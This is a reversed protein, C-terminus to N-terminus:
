ACGDLRGIDSANAALLCAVIRRGVASLHYRHTGTVKVILGHARLLALQRTVRAASRRRQDPDKSEGDIAVRVDANRFGKLLFAGQGLARLLEGDKGTLPNLARAKRRGNQIAPQGLPKLLEGLSQAEAVTALSDALRNNAAQSVEARRDLDAVGQRMKQWSKAAAESEGEKTRYVKFGEPRNITTEIRFAQAEKDYIKLSNTEYWFKLRTGEPRTRWDIKVEGTCSGYSQEPVKKGLYRLVDRCQLRDIGHRLWRAYWRALEEASHFVFDTAWESQETMWYYPTNMQDHLYTWLPQIPRVLEGLLKPWDTRRQEDLLEQALQPGAVSVLLNNRRQFPVGRRELQRCLWERGNLGVRIPFPFWTQVRVYCLGLDPHQFYHYYHACKGEQKVPTVLGASNKRLRFVRASEVASLVAIRGSTKGHDRALELAAAEKDIAGSNLPKLPVGQEKADQETQRRLTQTLQEGHKPFDICRLNCQYLYSEVGRGNNLLRSEGRFRLRDFGSLVFAILSGFRSLFSKMAHERYSSLAHVVGDDESARRNLGNPLPRLRGQPRRLGTERWRELAVMGM